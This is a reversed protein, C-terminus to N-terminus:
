RSHWEDGDRRARGDSALKVLHAVLSREALAFLAPPTDAYATPVLERATARGREALAAAVREERWLRHRVYEALLGAADPIPAGHAPLLARADLGALRGLSGLYLTMDGESEVDVLITSGSAVM